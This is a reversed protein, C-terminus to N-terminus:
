ASTAVFGLTAPRSGVSGLRCSTDNAREQYRCFFWPRHRIRNVILTGSQDFRIWIGRPNQWRLPIKHFSPVKIM